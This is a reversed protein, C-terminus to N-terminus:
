AVDLLLSVWRVTLCVEGRSPPDERWLWFFFCGGCQQVYMYKARLNKVGCGVVIVGVTSDFVGRRQESTRSAVGLLLLVWQVTSRVHGKSPPEDRWVWCCYCGGCQQVCREEARLSKEGAAGSQNTAALLSSYVPVSIPADLARDVRMPLDRLKELVEPDDHRLAVRIVYEGKAVQLAEIKAM